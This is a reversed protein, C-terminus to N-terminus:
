QFYNLDAMNKLLGDLVRQSHCFFFPIDLRNRCKVLGQVTRCWQPPHLPNMTGGLVRKLRGGKMRSQRIEGGGAARECEKHPCIKSRLIEQTRMAAPIVGIFADQCTEKVPSELSGIKKTVCLYCRLGKGSDTSLGEALPRPRSRVDVSAQRLKEHGIADSKLTGLCYISRYRSIFVPFDLFTCM